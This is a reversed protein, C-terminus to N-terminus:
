LHKIRARLSALRRSVAAGLTDPRGTRKSPLARLIERGHDDAIAGLDHCRLLHRLRSETIRRNWGFASHKEFARRERDTAAPGVLYGWRGAETFQRDRRYAEALLKRVELDEPYARLLGKLRERAKRPDGRELDAKAREMGDVRANQRNSRQLLSVIPM